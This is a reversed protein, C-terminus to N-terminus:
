KIKISWFSLVRFRGPIETDLMEQGHTDEIASLIVYDTGGVTIPVNQIGQLADYLKRYIDRAELLGTGWCDIQKSPTPIDPIHPNTSGGRQFITVNPLAVNEPARFLYIRNNVATALPTTLLYTRLIVSTDFDFSM